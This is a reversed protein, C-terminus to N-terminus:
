KPRQIPVGWGLLALQYSYWTSSALQTLRRTEQAGYGAGAVARPARTGGPSAVDGGRGDHETPVSRTEHRRHEDVQREREVKEPRHPRKERAREQHMPGSSEPNSNSVSGDLSEDHQVRDYIEQLLQFLV